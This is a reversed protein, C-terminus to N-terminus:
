GGQCVRHGCIPPVVIGPSLCRRSPVLSKRLIKKKILLAIALAFSGTVKTGESFATRILM